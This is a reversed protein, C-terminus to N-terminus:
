HLLRSLPKPIDIESDDEGLLQAILQWNVKRDGQGEASMPVTQLHLDLWEVDVEVYEDPHYSESYPFVKPKKRTTM